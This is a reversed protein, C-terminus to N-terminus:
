TVRVVTLTIADHNNGYMFAVDNAFVALRGSATAVWNTDLMAGIRIFHNSDAPVEGILEFYRADRVRRIPQAAFLLWRSYWPVSSLPYGRADSRITRDIWEGDAHFRYTAGQQIEIGTYNRKACAWATRTVPRDVELSVIEGPTAPCNPM